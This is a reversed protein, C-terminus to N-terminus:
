PAHAPAREYFDYRELASADLRAVPRRLRQELPGALRSPGPAVVLIPGRPLAGSTLGAPLRAAETAPEGALVALQELTSLALEPGTVGDVVAPERGAVVLLLRSGQQRCWAWCITAALSVADELVPTLLCSDPTLSSVPQSRGASGQIKVELRQSRVESKQGRVGSEQSRVGSEEVWPEVILVLNDTPIDEFERVMLEGRRATTRWHIWRPSDGTRFPRLAHFEAHAAPLRVPRGRVGGRSPAALTLFRRFRGMNLLGLQPLVISPGAAPVSREREALGFPYGSKVVLPGWVYWGRRPLSLQQRFGVAQRGGLRPVLWTLAHDPGTNEVTVALQKARGPNDIELRVAFPTRAFIPADPRMAGRLRGLRRGARWVNVAVIVAMLTALLTLLNIGKYLGAGWLAAAVVLWTWGERTV